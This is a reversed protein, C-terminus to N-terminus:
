ASAEAADLTRRYMRRSAFQEYGSREFAKPMPINARDCDGCSEAAGSALQDTGRRVLQAALGRGRQEPVIGLYAIVAVSPNRAPM